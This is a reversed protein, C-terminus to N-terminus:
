ANLGRQRRAKALSQIDVGAQGAQLLKRADRCVPHMAAIKGRSTVGSNSRNSHAHARDAGDFLSRCCASIRMTLSRAFIFAM